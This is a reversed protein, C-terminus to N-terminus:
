DTKGIIKVTHALHRAIHGVGLRKGRMQLLRQCAHRVRKAGMVTKAGMVVGHQAPEEIGEPKFVLENRGGFKVARAAKVLDQQAGRALIVLDHRDHELGQAFLALLGIRDKQRDM